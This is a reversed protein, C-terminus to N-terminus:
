ECLRGAFMVTGSGETWESAGTRIYFRFPRDARFEPIEEPDPMVEDNTMVATVAAAEIGTEDLKIKTKQIIDDVVVPHDKLMGTFDAGGGFASKVGLSKLLDCLEQSVLATEIEFRPLFVNVTMTRAKGLKTELGEVSGIVFLATVSNAMPIEALETDADKYYRCKLEASMFQKETSGGDATSFPLKGADYFTDAWSNKFYLANILIVALSETDYDEPLLEPIMGETKDDAWANVESIVKDTTFDRMEADYLGMKLKFEDTFAPIGARKWVSDAVRLAGCPKTMYERGAEGLSEYRETDKKVKANFGESFANFRKIYEELEKESDLGMAALLERRTEGGAGATLMGLAYRFSLPSVM